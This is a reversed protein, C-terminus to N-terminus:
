FRVLPFYISISGVSFETFLRVNIKKSSLLEPIFNFAQTGKKHKQVLSQLM